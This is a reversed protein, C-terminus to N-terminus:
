VMRHRNRRSRHSSKSRKRRHTRNHRSGNKAKGKNKGGVMRPTANALGDYLSNARLQNLNDVANIHNTEHSVGDISNATPLEVINVNLNPTAGGRWLSPKGRLSKGRKSKSKRLTKRRGSGKQGAGLNKAADSQLQQSAITKSSAAELIGGSINQTYGLHLPPGESAIMQGDPGVTFTAM